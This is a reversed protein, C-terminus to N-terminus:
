HRTKNNTGISFEVPTACCSGDHDEIEAVVSQQYDEQEEANLGLTDCLTETVSPVKIEVKLGMEELEILKGYAEDYQNLDFSYLESKTGEPDVQYIRIKSENHM